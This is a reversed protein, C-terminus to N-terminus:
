KIYTPDATEEEQEQEQEQEEEEETNKLQPDTLEHEPLLDAWPKNHM